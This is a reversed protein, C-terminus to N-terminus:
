GRLWWDVWWAAVDVVCGVVWKLLGGVVLDVLWGIDVLGRMWAVM